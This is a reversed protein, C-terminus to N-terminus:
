VDSQQHKQLQKQLKVIGVSECLAAANQMQQESSTPLKRLTPSARQYHEATVGAHGEQPSSSTSAHEPALSPRLWSSAAVLTFTIVSAAIASGVAAAAPLSAIRLRRAADTVAREMRELVSARATSARPM